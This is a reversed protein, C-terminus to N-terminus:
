VYVSSYRYMYRYRDIDIDSDIDIDIDPDVELAAAVFLKKARMPNTRSAGADAAVRTLLKAADTYQSAKRYLEV